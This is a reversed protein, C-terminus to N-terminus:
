GSEIAQVIRPQWTLAPSRPKVGALWPHSEIEQIMTVGIGGAVLSRVVQSKFRVPVGCRVRVGRRPVLRRLGLMRSMRETQEDYCEYFAGAQFLLLSGPCREAFFRYQDTLRSFAPPMKVIPVLVGEELTFFHWLWDSRNVLRQWLRYSNAMKLHARYSAWAARLHDLRARDYRYLTQRKHRRCGEIRRGCPQRSLTLPEPFRLM